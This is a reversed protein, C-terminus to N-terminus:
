GIVSGLQLKSAGTHIEFSKNFNPCSLLTERSVLKKVSDFAKQCEISWNWKASKSTLSLLPNLIKSRHQKM